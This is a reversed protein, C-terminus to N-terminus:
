MLDIEELLFGEGALARVVAELTEEQEAEITHFHIGETLDTLPRTGYTEVRRMFKRVDARSHIVLEGVIRGYIEHEVIVDRVRGGADVICDLERVIDEKGHKVKVVRSYLKREPVPEYLLYGRNTSLINRYSARLLAIDTVIVQRSVGTRKALETGSVPVREKQLIEMIKTRRAEGEM